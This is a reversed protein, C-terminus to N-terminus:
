GYSGSTIAGSAKFGNPLMLILNGTGKGTDLLDVVCGGSASSFAALGQTVTTSGTPDVVGGSTVSYGTSAASQLVLGSNTTALYVKFPIVRAMNTGSGDKLQITITCHNAAGPAATITCSAPDVQAVPTAGYKLNVINAVTFTGSANTGADLVVNATAQGPDPLSYVTAQGVNTNSITSNFGGSNNIAKFIFSGNSATAPFSSVTGAHGSSGATVNGQSVAFNGTQITLGFGLTSATTQPKINGATDSFVVLADAVSPGGSFTVSGVASANSWSMNSIGLQAPLPEILTFIDGGYVSGAAVSVFQGARYQEISQMDASRQLVAAIGTAGATNCVYIGNENANTQAAFLIRDGVNITVSDISLAGTAYTFTADVGNNLPGNSYTGTQNSNAVVRVPTLGAYLNYQQFASM